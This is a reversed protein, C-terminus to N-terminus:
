PYVRVHAKDTSPWSLHFCNPHFCLPHISTFLSLHSCPHQPDYSVHAAYISHCWWRLALPGTWFHSIDMWPQPSVICWSQSYWCLTQLTTNYHKMRTNLTTTTLLFTSSAFTMLRNWYLTVVVTNSFPLSPMWQLARSTGPCPCGEMACYDVYIKDHWMSAMYAKHWPAIPSNRYACIIDLMAGQTGPPCSLIKSTIHWPWAVVM